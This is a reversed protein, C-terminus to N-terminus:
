RSKDKRPKTKKFLDSIEQGLQELIIRDSKAKLLVAEEPTFGLDLFINGDSPTVHASQTEIKM